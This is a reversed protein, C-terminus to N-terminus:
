GQIRSNVGLFVANGSISGKDIEGREKFMDKDLLGLAGAEEHLGDVYDSIGQVDDALHQCREATLDLSYNAQLTLLHRKLEVLYTQWTSYFVTVQDGNEDTYHKRQDM